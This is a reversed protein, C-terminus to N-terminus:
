LYKKLFAKFKKLLELNYNGVQEIMIADLVEQPNKGLCTVERDYFACLSLVEQALTLKTLKKPFGEGSVKEEHTIILELVEKDVFSKDQLGSVSKEPHTKYITLEQASMEKLDKFFLKQDQLSFQSFSSDHYFAAIGLANLNINSKLEDAFKISISVTNILHAQIRSNLDSSGTRSQSVIGKLITDSNAVVKQLIDSSFKAMTYSKENNADKLIIDASKESVDLALSTKVTEPNLHINELQQGLFSEYKFEDTSNIHFKKVGKIRLRDLRTSDFEDNEHLYHFFNNGVKIYVNFPVILGASITTLRISIFNM